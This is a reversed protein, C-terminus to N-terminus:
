DCVRRTVYRDLRYDWTDNLKCKIRHGDRAIMGNPDPGYRDYPVDGLVAGLVASGVALGDDDDYDYRPAAEDVYHRGYRDEFYAPTVREYYGYPQAQTTQAIMAGGLVTAAAAAAFLLKRMLVEKLPM